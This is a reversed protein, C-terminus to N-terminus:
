LAADQLIREVARAAADPSFSGARIRGAAGLTRRMTSDLVLPALADALTDPKRPDVLLGTEGDVVIDLPGGAAFAVTPVGYAMAELLVIGYPEPRSANVLVDMAPLYQAADMRQGTFTVHDSIGKARVRAHLEPEYEPSLGFAPGGVIVGHVPLGREILAAVADILHHQGKWPQLRGIIGVVVREAPIHLARRAETPDRATSPISVGANVVEVRRRPWMDRQAEAAVRSCCIITRSPLTTAIRDIWHGTPISHQWWVIHTRLGTLVAAPAAYIQAKAAWSLVVAPRQDRVIRAIQRVTGVTQPANRLRGAPIVDAPVGLGRVEDVFDGTSLFVVRPEIRQRDLQQLTTWLVQEAGGLREGWPAVITVRM